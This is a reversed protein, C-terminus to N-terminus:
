LLYRNYADSYDNENKDNQRFINIQHKKAINQRHIILDAQLNYLSLQVFYTKRSYNSYIYSLTKRKSITKNFICQLSKAM